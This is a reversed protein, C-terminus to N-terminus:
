HCSGVPQKIRSKRRILHKYTYPLAILAIIAPIWWGMYIYGLTSVTASVVVLLILRIMGNGLSLGYRYRYVVWVVITYIVYWVLYAVGLGELGWYKYAGINLLICSIASLTETLLYIKGDGRALIVFAICWSIARFITGVIAWVIFPVVVLFESSYLTTVIIEGLAVFIAIVPFLIWLAISMEHSVFTSTRRKSVGVQSLRPYYEMAIATFILGVYKNVLTFGAQYHGVVETDGVHNLYSMFLYSALNTVIASVTLYIGLIMFGRGREVTEKITVSPSPKAVSVRQLLVAITTALSFVVLAPLVSDIGWYYFMPISIVVGVVVGSVSARALRRLQQTGQLVALEGNQVSSLLIIIAIIMFAVTHNGDGFTFESLLPSILVTVLLGILGLIWAWRRVVVVTRSTETETASAIDRVASNRMGLNFIVSLLEIASNYLGFLGVGAAGIWIAILKTRLISCIINIMQVGGFIGLAKLAGQTLNSRSLKAM